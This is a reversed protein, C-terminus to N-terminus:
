GRSFGAHRLVSLLPSQSVPQGNVTELTFSLSKERKLAVALAAIAAHQQADDDTFLLLDKGGQPLYLALKGAAIVVRAG